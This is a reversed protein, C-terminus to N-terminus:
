KKKGKKKKKVQTKPLAKDKAEYSGPENQPMASVSVTAEGTDRMMIYQQGLTWLNTTVWYLLVGAPLNIAIFGMFATMPIMLKQSQPDTSVMKQSFYTSAATLVALIYLPDPKILNPLWLFGVGKLAEYHLLMQYLAIFIPLQLLIPLCGGMPNFKNESYFKMMEQQMKEKDDKYREQIKKIEPQLKQMVKMSKTQKITLPLLFIRVIITLVIISWGYSPILSHILDMVSILASTIPALLRTLM